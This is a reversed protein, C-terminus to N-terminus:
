KAADWAAYYLSLDYDIDNMTLPGPAAKMAVRMEPTPERPLSKVDTPTKPLNVDVDTKNTVKTSM